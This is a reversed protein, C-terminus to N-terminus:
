MQIGEHLVVLDPCWLADRWWLLQAFYFDLFKQKISLEVDFSSNVGDLKEIQAIMKKGKLLVRFRKWGSYKFTTKQFRFDTSEVMSTYYSVDEIIPGHNLM